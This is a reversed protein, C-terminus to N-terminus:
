RALDVSQVRKKEGINLVEKVLNRYAEAAKGRPDHLFISKDEMSVEALRVTAPIVSDFIPINKGIGSRVSEVIDKRFATNNVMTLVVGGIKLNRNM